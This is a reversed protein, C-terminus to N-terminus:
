VVRRLNAIRVRIVKVEEARTPHSKRPLEQTFDPHCRKRGGALMREEVVWRTGDNDHAGTDVRDLDAIADGGETHDSAPVALMAGFSVVAAARGRMISPTWHQAPVRFIQADGGDVADGIGALTPAFHDLHEIRREVFADKLGAVDFSTGPM